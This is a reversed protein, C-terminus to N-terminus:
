SGLCPCNFSDRLSEWRFFLLAWDDGDSLCCTIHFFSSRWPFRVTFHSSFSLGILPCPVKMHRLSGRNNLHRHSSYPWLYRTSLHILRVIMDSDVYISPFAAIVSALAPSLLDYGKSAEWIWLIPSFGILHVPGHQIKRLPARPVSIAYIAYVFPTCPGFRTSDLLHRQEMPSRLFSHMWAGAM